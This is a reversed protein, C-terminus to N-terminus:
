FLGQLEPIALQLLRIRENPTAHLAAALRKLLAISPRMTGRELSAYWGRSVGVIEALEEQSVPRGRRTNLREQEGVKAAERDLRRRLRRLLSSLEPNSQPESLHM